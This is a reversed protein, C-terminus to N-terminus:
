NIIFPTGKIMFAARVHAANDGFPRWGYCILLLHLYATAERACCNVEVGGGGGRWKCVCVCVCVCM